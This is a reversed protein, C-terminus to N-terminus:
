LNANDNGGDSTGAAHISSYNFLSIAFFIIFLKTLKEM